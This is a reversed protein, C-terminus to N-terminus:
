DEDPLMITISPQPDDIDLAACVAKLDVRRNRIKLTVHVQSSQACRAMACRTMWVIDWLVGTQVEGKHEVYQDWVTRTLFTPYTIGAERARESVDVQMGDELAQKRTYTYTPEGFIETLDSTKETQSSM